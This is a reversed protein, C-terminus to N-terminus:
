QQGDGDGGQAGYEIGVEGSKEALITKNSIPVTTEILAIRQSPKACIV